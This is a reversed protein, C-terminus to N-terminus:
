LLRFSLGLSFIIAVCRADSHLYMPFSCILLFSLCGFLFISCLHGMLVLSSTWSGPLARFKLSHFVTGFSGSKLLTICGKVLNLFCSFMRVKSTLFSIPVSESFLKANGLLLVFTYEIIEHEWEDTHVRSFRYAPVLLWPSPCPFCCQQHCHFGSFLRLANLLSSWYTTTCKWWWIGDAFFILKSCSCARM